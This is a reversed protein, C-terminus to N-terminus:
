KIISAIKEAANKNLRGGKTQQDNSPHTFSQGDFSFFTEGKTEGASNQFIFRKSFDSATTPQRDYNSSDLLVGLLQKTAEKGLRNDLKFFGNFIITQTVGATDFPENHSGFSFFRHRLGNLGYGSRVSDPLLAFRLVAIIVFAVVSWLILKKRNM